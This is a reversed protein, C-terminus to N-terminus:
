FSESHGCSSITVVKRLITSLMLNVSILRNKNNDALAASMIRTTLTKIVLTITTLVPHDKSDKAHTKPASMGALGVQPASIAVVLLVRLNAVMVAKTGQIPLRNTVVITITTTGLPPNIAM